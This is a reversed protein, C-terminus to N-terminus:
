KASKSSSLKRKAQPKSVASKKTGANPAEKGEFDGCTNTELTIPWQTETVPEGGTSPIPSNRHCHGARLTNGQRAFKWNKCVACTSM